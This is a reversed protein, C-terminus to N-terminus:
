NVRAARPEEQKGNKSGISDLSRLREREYDRKTEIYAHSSNEGASPWTIALLCDTTTKTPIYGCDLQDARDEIVGVVRAYVDGQAKMLKKASEGDINRLVAPMSAGWVPVDAECHLARVDSLYEMKDIKVAAMHIMYSKALNYEKTYNTSTSPSTILVASPTAVGNNSSMRGTTYDTSSGRGMTRPTYSPMPLTEISPTSFDDKDFTFMRGTPLEYIEDRVITLRNREALWALMGAESAVLMAQGHAVLATHLPRESNRAMYFKGPTATDYWLLAFAGDIDEFAKLGRDAIHNIAWESDVDFKTRDWSGRLTGNHVGYVKTGDEREAIFPHATIDKISGVTAARHHAVTLFSSPVATIYQQTKRLDVFTQGVTAVKYHRLLQTQDRGVQFMGTSDEGRVAGTVLADRLFKGADADAFNKRTAVAVIGCM